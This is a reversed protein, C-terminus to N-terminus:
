SGWGPQRMSRESIQPAYKTISERIKAANGLVLFTLNEPAYYKRIAANAQEVTVADMRAFLTDIEDRTLGFIELEALEGAVQDITELHRTPFTGKLYAKASALQEATIGKENLRKL